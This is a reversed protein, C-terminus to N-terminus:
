PARQNLKALLDTARQKYGAEEPAWQPNGKANLVTELETRAEAERDDDLFLEALFLHSLVSNPDHTLSARLHAEAQKHGGGFMRPVKHYWRGLARDAAGQLFAPDVKLLKELSEKIPKRYKLGARMGYKEGVEGMNAATWFHGEPRDPGLSQATVGAQIGQDLFARREPQPAHTGLWYSIRSLRWAYELNEPRAKLERSLIDAAQRASALRARDAYLADVDQQARVTPAIGLM